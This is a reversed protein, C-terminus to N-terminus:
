GMNAAGDPHASHTHVLAHGRGRALLWRNVPWAAFLAVVLSFAMAGWFLLSSLPADMAGPVFWMVSNDVVEMVAISATDAALALRTAQRWPMGKRHLPVVTFAYGFVFALAVALAITAGNSWGLATGIVIGLVEGVACGMLCHLTAFFAMRTLGDGAHAAPRQSKAHAQHAHGHHGTHHHTSATNM